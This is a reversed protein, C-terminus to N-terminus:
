VVFHFNEANKDSIFTIIIGNHNYAIPLLQYLSVCKNHEDEHTLIM